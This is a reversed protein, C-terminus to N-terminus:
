HKIFKCCAIGKNTSLYIFYIGDKLTSCNLSIQGTILPNSYSRSWCLTGRIDTINISSIADGPSPFDLYLYGVVPNPYVRLSLTPKHEKQELLTKGWSEDGKSFYILSDAVDCASEPQSIWGNYVQGCGRAYREEKLIDLIYYKRIYVERGHYWAPNTAVEDHVSFIVSDPFEILLTDTHLFLSTDVLIPPDTKLFDYVSRQLQYGISKGLTFKDTIITKELQFSLENYCYFHLSHFEDGPKFDYIEGLAPLEQSGAPQMVFLLFLLICANNTKMARNKGFIRIRSGFDM